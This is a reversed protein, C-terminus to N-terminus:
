SATRNTMRGLPGPHTLVEKAEALPDAPARLLSRAVRAHARATAVLVYNFLLFAALFGAAVVLALPLTDVFLGVAGHGHPGNPFYGLAIGHANGFGQEPAWYWLPAAVGALLTLWVTLVITDLAYLPVWLGILYALDRWTAADRWRTRLQALLGHETAQCYSGSVPEAFVQRLMGREVNACGRVVGAAGILLPIGAITIVLAAAVTVTTFAISFLVWSVALYSALYGAARWPAASWALRLPNARLRLRGSDQGRAGAPRRSTLTTM